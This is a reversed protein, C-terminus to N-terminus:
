ILPEQRAATAFLTGGGYYATIKDEELATVETASKSGPVTAFSAGLISEVLVATEQVDAFTHPLLVNRGGLAPSLAVEYFRALGEERDVWIDSVTGAVVGDAGVVKVGIPNLGEAAVSYSPDVRMPVIRPAGDPYRGEVVDARLAFAAAGVGSLMKNGTPDFPGGPFAPKLGAPLAEPAEFKPALVVGGGPLLFSKATPQGFVGTGGATGNENVLPFGERNSERQLYVVLGLFFVFFAALVVEAVDMNGALQGIQM